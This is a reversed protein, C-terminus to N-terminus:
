LMSLGLSLVREGVRKDAHEVLTGQKGARGYGGCVRKAGGVDVLGVQIPYGGEMIGGYGLVGGM